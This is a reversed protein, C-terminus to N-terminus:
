ADAEAKRSLVHRVKNKLQKSSFPKQIFQTGNTVGGRAAIVERPFGSMFLVKIQPRDQRIREVVESGNMIPMVVDSLLLDIKLDHTAAWECAERADPFELVVFGESELMRKVVERVMMEDEVLLITECSSPAFEAESESILKNRIPEDTRPFFLTFTTGEGPKSEVSIHGGHQEMIGYVTSLGLGTGQGVEKTTFFPDFIKAQTEEDMGVGSDNITLKVYEGQNLNPGAGNGIAQLGM